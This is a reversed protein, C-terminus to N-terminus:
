NWGNKFRYYIIKPNPVHDANDIEGIPKAIFVYDGRVAMIRLPAIINGKGLYHGETTLFDLMTGKIKTDVYQLLIIGSKLYFINELHTAESLMTFYNRMKAINENIRLNTKLERYFAPKREVDFLKELQPSYKNIKAGTAYAQYLNGDEDVCCLISNQSRSIINSFKNPKLWLEKVKTISSDGENLIL